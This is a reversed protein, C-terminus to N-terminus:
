ESYYEDFRPAEDGNFGFSVAEINTSKPVSNEEVVDFGIMSTVGHKGSNLINDKEESGYGSVDRTDELMWEEPESTGFEWIKAKTIVEENEHDSEVRIVQEYQTDYKLEALEVFPLEHMASGAALMPGEEPHTHICGAISPINDPDDITEPIRIITVSMFGIFADLYQEELTKIISRVEVIDSEPADKLYIPNIDELEEEVLGDAVIRKGEIADEDSEISYPNPREAEDYLLKFGDPIVEEGSEDDKFTFKYDETPEEVEEYVEIGEINRDPLRDHRSGSAIAYSGKEPLYIILIKTTSPLINILKWPDDVVSIVDDELKKVVEFKRPPYNSDPDVEVLIYHCQDRIEKPINKYRHLTRESDLNQNISEKSM